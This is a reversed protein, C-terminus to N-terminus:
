LHWHRHRQRRWVRLDDGLRISPKESLEHSNCLLFGQWTGVGNQDSTLYTLFGIGTGTSTCLVSLIGTGTVLVELILDLSRLSRLGRDPDVVDPNGHWLRARRVDDVVSLLGPWSPGLSDRHRRVRYLTITTIISHHFRTCTSNSTNLHILYLILKFPRDGELVAYGPPKERRQSRYRSTRSAPPSVNSSM